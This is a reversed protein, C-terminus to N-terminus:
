PSALTQLEDRTGEVVARVWLIDAEGGTHPNNDGDANDADFHALYILTRNASGVSESYSSAVSGSGAAAAATVLNTYPQALVTELQRRLHTRRLVQEGQVGTSRVGASLANLAPVLSTAILVLAVLVEVYSFGQEADSRQRKRHAGATVASPLRLAPAKADARTTIAAPAPRAREAGAKALARLLRALSM